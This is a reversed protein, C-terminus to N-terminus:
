PRRSLNEQNKSKRPLLYVYAGIIVVALVTLIVILTIRLVDSEGRDIKSGDVIARYAKAPGGNEDEVYVTATYTGDGNDVFQARTRETIHITSWDDAVFDTGDPNAKLWAPEYPTSEEPLPAVDTLYDAPVFGRVAKYRILAYDREPASVYGEVVVKAGRTLRADKLAGHLCPFFYENVDNTLYRETDIVTWYEEEPVRSIEGDLRFLTASFVRDNEYEDYLVVLGYEDKAALLIGRRDADTRYYFSYPFFAPHEEHLIDLDTRIGITGAPVDILLGEKGHAAFVSEYVGSADIEDLTPIDIVDPHTRVTYNNFLFFLEDDEFGLAFAAPAVPSQDFAFNEGKVTALPEAEGSSLECYVEEKILNGEFDARLSSYGEPLAGEVAEGSVTNDLFERESFSAVSRDGYVVFLKGYLDSALAANTKGNNRQVLAAGAEAKGFNHGTVFYVSGYVCALGTVPNNGTSHRYFFTSEGARYLYVDSGEAAVAIINGDTAVLSPVYADGNGDICPIVSYGLIRTEQGGDAREARTLTAVSIRRNGADATVLLDGARVCDVAGSLRNEAASAATIEYDTFSCTEGVSLEKVANGAICYLMGNSGSLASYGSGEAVTVLPSGGTMDARHLGREDTFFMYKGIACIASPQLQGNQPDLFFSVGASDSKTNFPCVAGNMAYYFVGDAYTMPLQAPLNTALPKEISPIDTSGDPSLSYLSTTTGMTTTGYIKGDAVIFNALNYDIEKVDFDSADPDLTHLKMAADTFYLLGDAFQIKGFTASSSGSDYVRYVANEKGRSYLYIRNGDAIAIHTESIAIDKPSRLDLYQEYSGPLALMGEATTLEAASAKTRPLAFFAAFLFLLAAFLFLKRGKLPFKMDMAFM